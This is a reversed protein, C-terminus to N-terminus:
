WQRICGLAITPGVIHRKFCFVYVERKVKISFACPNRSLLFTKLKMFQASKVDSLYTKLRDFFATLCALSSNLVSYCGTDSLTQVRKIFYTDRGEPLCNGQQISPTRGHIFHSYDVARVWPLLHRSKKMSTVEAVSEVKM